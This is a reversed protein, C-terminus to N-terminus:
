PTVTLMVSGTDFSQKKGGVLFKVVAGSNYDYEGPSTYEQHGAPNLDTMTLLVLNVTQGPGLDGVAWQLFEKESAGRTSLTATGMSPHAAVVDIEAGWRDKVTVDRWMTGSPNHVQIVELFDVPEGVEIIGDRDEDLYKVKKCVEHDSSCADLDLTYM